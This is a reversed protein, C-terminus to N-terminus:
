DDQAWRALNQQITNIDAWPDKRRRKLKEPVEKMTFADARTLKSLESWAIPMAVPAGPRGRLSYSAVATAGRGNRLYDVFIRKNRLSKTSTALFRHPESQALADAFGHAFRKTLDWDCGPNLPVVVHLGKGGSVRLFSELELQQLLKRIDTAAKKVESFPVDPGPDLDFVVRDARDPSDAHSGWPHFELANFQVLELLSAADEVVLYHANIGSDEKLKVSSVLELGATHHKQFFCPRGTGAPCRIISLPRGIIEPLLYDMVASYYDWVDQKTAKIDPFIVKSPSSLKPPAREGPVGGGKGERTKVAVGRVPDTM